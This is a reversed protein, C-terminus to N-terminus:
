NICSHPSFAKWLTRGIHDHPRARPAYVGYYSHAWLSGTATHPATCLEMVTACNCVLCVTCLSCVTSSIICFTKFTKIILLKVLINKAQCDSRHQHIATFEPAQRLCSTWMWTRACLIRKCPSHICILFNWTWSYLNKHIQIRGREREVMRMRHAAHLAHLVTPSYTYSLSIGFSRVYKM